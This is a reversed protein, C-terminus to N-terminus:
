PTFIMFLCAEKSVEVCSAVITKNIVSSALIKPVIGKFSMIGLASIINAWLMLQKKYNYMNAGYKKQDNLITKRKESNM